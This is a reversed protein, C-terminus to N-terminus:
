AREPRAPAEGPEAGSADGAQDVRVGLRIATLTDLLPKRGPLHMLVGGAAVLPLACDRGLKRLRALTSRDGGRRHLEVGIWARGPFCDALWCGDQIEAGAPALWLVLCGDLSAQLDARELRYGGKPSRRRARSILHSLNGYGQRDTALVVLRMGDVLRLESGVILHLGRAKAEGHARVVGALSCEDTLALARYGLEWARGVLEEPHSAATLFSYNSRCHLEAFGPFPDQVM